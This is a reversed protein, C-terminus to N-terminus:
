LKKFFFLKRSKKGFLFSLAERTRDANLKDTPPKTKEYESTTRAELYFNKLARDVM